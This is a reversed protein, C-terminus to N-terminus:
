VSFIRFAILRTSSVYSALEGKNTNFVAMYLEGTCSDISNLNDLSTRSWDCIPFRGVQRDEIETTKTM